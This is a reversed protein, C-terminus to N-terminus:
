MLVLSNILYLKSGLALPLVLLLSAWDKGKDHRSLVTRIKLLEKISIDCIVQTVKVRPPSATVPPGPPAVLTLSAAAPLFEDTFHSQDEVGKIGLCSEKSEDDDPILSAQETVSLELSSSKRRSNKLSSNSSM